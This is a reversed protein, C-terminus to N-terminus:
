GNKEDETGSQFVRAKVFAEQADQPFIRKADHDNGFRKQTDSTRPISTSAILLVM